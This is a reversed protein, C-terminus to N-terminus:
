RAAEQRIYTDDDILYVLATAASAIVWDLEGCAIYTWDNPKCAIGVSQGNSLALVAGAAQSTLAVTTNDGITVSAVANANNYVALNRGKSPLKRATTADTTYGSAGDGLPLLKRGVDTNKQAGAKENYTVNAITSTDRVESGQINRTNKPM